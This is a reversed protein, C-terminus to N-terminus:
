NNLYEANVNFKNKSYEIFISQYKSELPAVCRITINIFNGELFIRKQFTM